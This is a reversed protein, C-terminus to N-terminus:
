TNVPPARIHSPHYQYNTSPATEFYFNITSPKPNFVVQNTHIITSDFLSQELLLCLPCVTNSNVQKHPQPSNIDDTNILVIGNATCLAAFFGSQQGSVATSAHAVPMLMKILLSIIILHASFRALQPKRFQYLM